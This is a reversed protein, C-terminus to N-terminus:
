EVKMFWWGHGHEPTHIHINNEECYEDVAKTVGEIKGYFRGSMIGGDVLRTCWNEIDFKVHEYSHDADLIVLHFRFQISCISILADKSTKRIIKRRSYAFQTAEVAEEYYKQYEEKSWREYGDVPNWPDIMYLYVSPDQLLIKSTRGKKVGIEAVNPFSCPKKIRELLSRIYDGTM